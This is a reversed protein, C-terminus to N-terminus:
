KDHVSCFLVARKCVGFIFNLPIVKIEWLSSELARCKAPDTEEMVYPDAEFESFNLYCWLLVGIACIM